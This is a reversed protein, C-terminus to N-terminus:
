SPELLQGGLGGKGGGRTLQKKLARGRIGM